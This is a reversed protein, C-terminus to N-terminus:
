ENFFKILTTRKLSDYHSKSYINLMKTKESIVLQNKLEEYAQDNDLTKDFFLKTVTPKGHIAFLYLKYPKMAECVNIIGGLEFGWTARGCVHLWYMRFKKINFVVDSKFKAEVMINRIHEEFNNNGKKQAETLVGLIKKCNEKDTDKVKVFAAIKISMSADSMDTLQSQLGCVGVGKVSGAYVNGYWLLGLVLIGLLKKM